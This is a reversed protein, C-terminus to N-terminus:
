SRRIDRTVEIRLTKLKNYLTQRTIGLRRAAEVKNGSTRELAALIAREELESLSLAGLDVLEGGLTDHAVGERRREAAPRYLEPKHSFHEPALTDGDCFLCANMMCAELERVNGPWGYRLLLDLAGQSLRKPAQRQQEAFGRLFHQVLLVIDGERERLPPLDIRVVNLRFYLDQRFEKRQVMEALDRNCAAVIRVDVKVCRQAGVPWIEGEQLARLLKAQMALSMDAVEDLFLTGGHAVEFLGKRDRDAGTFAGRQHGFLESELLTETLAACNVSVFPRDRRRAGNYHIAKAVLEKGTGSEGEVLVPVSTDTIRDLVAFIRQLKPSSGIINDYSYRTELQSRQLALSAEIEELRAAQDTVRASLEDNLAQIRAHSAELDQQARRTREHLWANTIAVAAQDAFAAIIELDDSSFTSTQFRNDLYLAGIVEGHARLPFCLISRLKLHHVSLAERFREDEGADVTIIPEGSEIVDRAISRSVRSGTKRLSEQDINRAARVEFKGGGDSGLIVFGREAGTLAIASDLIFDLLRQLDRESVLRRNIELIRIMREHYERVGATAPGAESTAMRAEDLLGARERAGLFLERHRGTLGSAQALIRESCAAFRARAELPNGLERYCRAMGAESRWGLDRLRHRDAASGARRLHVLAQELDGSLRRAEGRLFDVYAAQKEAGSQESHVAAESAIHAIAEVDGASRAVLGLEVLLDAAWAANGMERLEALARRLDRRAGDLDGECHQVKGLLARAYAAMLSIGHSEAEAMARHIWHRAEPLRNLDLLVNALNSAAMTVGHGDGLLEHARLADRYSEAAEGLQGLEHRVTGINMAATAIRRRDGSVLALELSESYAAAAAEFDARRQHVLGVGNVAEAEGVQDGARRCAERCAEFARLAEDPRETYYYSLARSRLLSAETDADPDACLGRACTDVAEDYRGMQVLCRAELTAGDPGELGTARELARPFEGRDLDLAALGFTARRWSVPDVGSDDAM